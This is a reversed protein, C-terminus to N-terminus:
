IHILSLAPGVARYQQKAMLGRVVTRQWHATDHLSHEPKDGTDDDARDGKIILTAPPSVRSEARTSSKPISRFSALLRLTTTLKGIMSVPKAHPRGHPLRGGPASRLRGSSVTM